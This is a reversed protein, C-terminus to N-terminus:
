ALKGNADVYFVPAMGTILLIMDEDKTVRNSRTYHRIIELKGSISGSVAAHPQQSGIFVGLKELLREGDEVIGLRTGNVYVVDALEVGTVARLAEGALRTVDGEPRAFSLGYRLKLEPMVAPGPTIEEAAHMAAAAAQAAASLSYREDSGRGNVSVRCYPHMNAAILFLLALAGMVAKKWM